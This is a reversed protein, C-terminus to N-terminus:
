ESVSLVGTGGFAPFIQMLRAKELPIAIVLKRIRGSKTRWKTEWRMLNPGLPTLLSDKLDELMLTLELVHKIRVRDEKVDITRPFLEVLLRVCFAYILLTKLADILADWPGRMLLGVLLIGSAWALLYLILARLLYPLYQSGLARWKGILSENWNVEM